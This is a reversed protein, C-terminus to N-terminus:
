AKLRWNRCWEISIPCIDPRRADIFVLDFPGSLEDVVPLAPGVRLDIQQGYPSSAFHKAAIRAVDPDIECTTIHGDGPMAEAM